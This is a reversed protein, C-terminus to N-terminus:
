VLMQHADRTQAPVHSVKVNRVGSYRIVGYGHWCLILQKATQSLYESSFICVSDNPEARHASRLVRWCVLGEGAPEPKIHCSTSLHTCRAKGFIGNYIIKGRSNWVLYFAVSISVVNIYIQRIEDHSLSLLEEIPRLYFVLSTGLIKHYIKLLICSLLIPSPLM